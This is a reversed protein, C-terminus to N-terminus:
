FFARWVARKKTAVGALRYFQGVPLITMGCYALSELSIDTHSAYAGPARAPSTKQRRL